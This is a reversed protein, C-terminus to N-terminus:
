QGLSCPSCTSVIAPWSGGSILIETFSNLNKTSYKHSSCKLSRIHGIGTGGIGKNKWINHQGWLFPGWSAVLRWCYPIIIYMNKKGNGPHLFCCVESWCKNPLINYWRTRYMRNIWSLGRLGSPLDRFGVCTTTCRLWQPKWCDKQLCSQWPYNRDCPVNTGHRCPNLSAAKQQPGKQKKSPFPFHRQHQHQGGQTLQMTAKTGRIIKPRLLKLM